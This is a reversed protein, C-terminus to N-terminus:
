FTADFFTIIGSRLVSIFSPSLQAVSTPSSKSELNSVVLVVSLVKITVKIKNFSILHLLCM